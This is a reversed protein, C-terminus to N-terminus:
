KHLAVFGTTKDKNIRRNRKKKDFSNPLSRLGLNIMTQKYKMSGWIKYM